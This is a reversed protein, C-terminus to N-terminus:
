ESWEEIISQSDRAKAEMQQVMGWDGDKIAISEMLLTSAYTSGGSLSWNFKGLVDQVENVRVPELLVWVGGHTIGAEVGIEKLNDIVKCAALYGGPGEATYSPM